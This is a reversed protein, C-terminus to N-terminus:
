GTLPAVTFDSSREVADLLHNLLMGIRGEDFKNAEVAEQVSICHMEFTIRLVGAIGEQLCLGVVLVEDIIGVVAEDETGHAVIVFM